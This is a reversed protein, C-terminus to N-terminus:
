RPLEVDYLRIVHERVIKLKEPEPVAVNTKRKERLHFAFLFAV